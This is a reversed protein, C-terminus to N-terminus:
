NPVWHGIWKVNVRETWCSDLCFECFCALDKVFLQTLNNKNLSYISHIKMDRQHSWVCIYCVGQGCRWSPCALLNNQTTETFWLINIWAQNVFTGVLVYWRKLMKCSPVMFMWNSEVFSGKLWFGQGMMSAKGMATVWFFELV